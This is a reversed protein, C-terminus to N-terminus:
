VFLGAVFASALRCLCNQFHPMAYAHSLYVLCLRDKHVCHRLSHDSEAVPCHIASSTQSEKTQPPSDFESAHSTQRGETPDCAQPTRELAAASVWDVERVGAVSM